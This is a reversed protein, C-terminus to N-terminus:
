WTWQYGVYSSFRNTADANTFGRGASILLHNHEDFNYYGGLNFGTSAGTGSIQETSHYIEGGLTLHESIDKQLLWGFFWHNRANAANNIWYGGGGYSQWAGWRKQLWLPLYIQAAGNGLGLDADGTHLEVLPFIGAMPTDTTEQMFRYKAGLEIDGLGNQHPGQQPSSFAYPIIIHLQLNPAAGYNYEVHPLTGSNGDQTRLQQSSIYLEHHRYAVPEPDDTMFPPGALAPRVPMLIAGTLVAVTALPAIHLRRQPQM